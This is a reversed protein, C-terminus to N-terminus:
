IESCLVGVATVPGTPLTSPARGPQDPATDPHPPRPPVPPPRIRHGTSSPLCRAATGTISVPQGGVESSGDVPRAVAIWLTIGLHPHLTTARPRLAVPDGRPGARLSLGCLEYKRDRPTTGTCLSRHAPGPRQASLSARSTQGRVGDIPLAAASSTRRRMLHAHVQDATRTACGGQRIVRGSLLHTM